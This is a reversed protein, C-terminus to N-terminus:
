KNKQWASSGYHGDKRVFNTKYWNESQSPTHEVPDGVSEVKWWTDPDDKLTILVGPKIRKDFEVYGSTHKNDSRLGLWTMIM